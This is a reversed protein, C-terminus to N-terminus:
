LVDCLIKKNDPLLVRAELVHHRLTVAHRSQLREAHLREQQQRHLPDRAERQQHIGHAVAEVRVVGVVVLHRAAEGSQLLYVVRVFGLQSNDFAHIECSPM